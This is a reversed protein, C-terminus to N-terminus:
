AEDCDRLAAAAESLRGRSALGIGEDHMFHAVSISVYAVTVVTMLVFAAVTMGRRRQGRPPDSAPVIMAVWDSLRGCPRPYRYCERWRWHPWSSRWRGPPSRPASRVVARGVIVVLVAVGVLGIVGSESLLEILASDAHRPAFAHTVFYDSQPLAQVFTGTGTGTLPHEGWLHLAASWIEGRAGLTRLTTLRDWLSTAMGTQVAVIALGAGAIGASALLRRPIAALENGRMAAAITVVSAIVAAVWATRSGSAILICVTGLYGVGIVPRAIRIRWLRSMAPALMLITFGVVHVHRFVLTPFALPLPPVSADVAFWRALVAGWLITFLLTVALGAARRRRSRFAPRAALLAIRRAVYFAAGLGDSGIATWHRELSHLFHRPSVSAASRLSRPGILPMPM